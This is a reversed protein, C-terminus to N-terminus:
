FSKTMKYRTMMNIPKIEHHITGKSTISKKGNEQSSELSSYIFLSSTDVMSIRSGIELYPVLNKWKDEQCCWSTVKSGGGGTSIKESKAEMGKSFEKRGTASM